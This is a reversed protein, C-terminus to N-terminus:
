SLAALHGSPRERRSFLSSLGPEMSSRRRNVAPPRSGLSLAVSFLGGAVRTRGSRRYPHFPATLACRAAPLPRPVAFGAPLLVAYSSPCAAVCAPRSGRWIRPYTAHPPRCRDDWLFPWGPAALGRVSGPKCTMQRKRRQTKGAIRKAQCFRAPVDWARSGGHNLANIWNWKLSAKYAISETSERKCQMAPFNSFDLIKWLTVALDWQRGYSGM